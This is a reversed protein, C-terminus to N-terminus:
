VYLTASESEFGEIFPEQIVETLRANLLQLSRRRLVLDGELGLIAKTRHAEIVLEYDSPDLLSAVSRSRGDVVTQLWVAGEVEDESRALRYVFGYLRRGYEPSNKRFNEAAQRLIAVDGINVVMWRKPVGAM